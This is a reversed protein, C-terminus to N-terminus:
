NVESCEVNGKGHGPKSVNLGKLPDGSALDPCSFTKGEVADAVCQVAGSESRVPHTGTPCEGAPAVAHGASPTGGGQGNPQVGGTPGGKPAEAASSGALMVAFTFLIPLPRM